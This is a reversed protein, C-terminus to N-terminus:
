LHGCSCLFWAIYLPLIYIINAMSLNLKPSRILDVFVFANEEDHIIINILLTTIIVMLGQHLSKNSSFFIHLVSLAQLM